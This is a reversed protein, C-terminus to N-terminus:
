HMTALDWDSVFWEAQEHNPRGVVSADIAARLEHIEDATLFQLRMFELGCQIRVEFRQHGDAAQSQVVEWKLLNPPREYIWEPPGGQILPM